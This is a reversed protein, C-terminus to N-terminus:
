QIYECNGEMKASFGCATEDNKKGLRKCANKRYTSCAQGM